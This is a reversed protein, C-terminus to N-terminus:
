GNIGRQTQWQYTRRFRTRKKTYKDLSGFINVYDSWFSGAKSFDEDSDTQTYKAAGYYLLITQYESPIEPEETLTDASLLAPKRYYWVDLIDSASPVPLLNIEKAFVKFGDNVFDDLPRHVYTVAANRLRCMLINDEIMDTPTGYASVGAAVDTCARAELRLIPTLELLCQNFFMVWEENTIDEGLKTNGQAILDSLIM